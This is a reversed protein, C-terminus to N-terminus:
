YLWAYPTSDGICLQFTEDFVEQQDEANLFPHSLLANQVELGARATCGIYRELSVGFPNTGGSIENQEQKGLRTVGELNLINLM